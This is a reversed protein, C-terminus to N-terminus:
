NSPLGFFNMRIAGCTTDGAPIVDVPRTLRRSHDMMTRRYIRRVSKQRGVFKGRAIRLLIFIYFYKAILLIKGTIPM